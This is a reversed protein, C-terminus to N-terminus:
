PNGLAKKTREYPDVIPDIDTFNVGVINYLWTPMTVQEIVLPIIRRRRESMDLVKCIIAEEVCNGSELYRPSIVALTFRSEKICRELEEVFTQSPDFDREDIAVKYGDTELKKLLDRAFQKDPDQRRYSILVDYKYPTSMDSEKSEVLSSHNFERLLEAFARMPYTYRKVEAPANLGTIPELHDDPYRMSRGGVGPRIRPLWHQALILFVHHFGPIASNRYSEVSATVKPDDIVLAGLDIAEILLEGAERMYRVLFSQRAKSNERVESWGPTMREALSELCAAIEVIRMFSATRNPEPEIASRLPYETLIGVKLNQLIRCTVAGRYNYEKGTEPNVFNNAETPQPDRLEHWRDLAEDLLQKAQDIFMAAEDLIVGCARIREAIGRVSDLIKAGDTRLLRELDSLRLRLYDERTLEFEAELRDTLREWLDADGLDHGFQERLHHRIRKWESIRSTDDGGARIAADLDFLKGKPSRCDHCTSRDEHHGELIAGCELCPKWRNGDIFQAAQLLLAEARLQLSAPIAWAYGCEEHNAALLEVQGTEENAPIGTDLAVEIDDLAAGADGRLLHLRARELLLDIHYLRYGCDRAVELGAELHNSCCIASDADNVEGLECDKCRIDMEKALEIRARVLASWCMIEKSERSFPWDECEDLLQRAFTCNGEERAVDALLLNSDPIKVGEVISKMERVARAVLERTNEHRGLRSQLHAFEFLRECHFLDDRDTM